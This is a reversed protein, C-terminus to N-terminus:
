PDDRTFRNARLQTGEVITIAAPMATAFHFSQKM